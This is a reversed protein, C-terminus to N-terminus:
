ASEIDYAMTKVIFVHKGADLAALAMPAHMSLPTCILVAELQRNVLLQRYDEYGKADKGAIQLGKELHPPYVDAVGLVKVGKVKVLEKLDAQGQNGAGIIGVNVPRDAGPTPAPVGAPAAFAEAPLHSGVYYAVTGAAGSRLLARRNLGSNSRDAM